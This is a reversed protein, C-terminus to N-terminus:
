DGGLRRGSGRGGWLNSVSGLGASFGSAAARGAPAGAPAAAYATGYARTTSRPPGQPSFWRHVFSPTQLYNRGNSFTPYLRTLFDYLHAAILGSSQHLAAQPGGAAFTMLLLAYPLYQMPITLIYFTVRQRLNDQAHTYALALVLAQTFIM